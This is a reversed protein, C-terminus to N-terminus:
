LNAACHAITLQEIHVGMWEVWACLYPSRAQQLPIGLKALLLELTTRGRETYTQLRAAVYPSYLM